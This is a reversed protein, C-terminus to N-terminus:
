FGAAVATLIPASGAADTLRFALGEEGDRYYLRAWGPLLLPKQFRVKLTMRGAPVRDGLEALCRALSWMGHAIPQSFGFPRATVAAIHIPNYDACIRAYRRGANRAAQWSLQELYGAGPDEHATSGDGQGGSRALMTSTEMWVLEDGCLLRTELDFEQGRGTERCDKARVRITLRDSATPERYQAIENRLHVMGLLRVPFAECGLVALQLRGALVHPYTAPLPVGAGFGCIGLYRRLAKPSIRLPEQTAEIRHPAAGAPMLRPKRSLAIRLYRAALRPPRSFRLRVGSEPV